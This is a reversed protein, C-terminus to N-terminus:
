DFVRMMREMIDIEEQTPDEKSIFEMIKMKYEDDREDWDLFVRLTQSTSPWYGKRNYKMMRYTTSIPCHINKIRLFKAEEDHLFDADALAVHQNLLGIRVVTFDFNELITQIEGQTVVVGEQMPKILNVTPCPFLLHDKTFPKYVIALDNEDKMECGKNKFAESLKAFIEKTPSYVDLDTAGVPNRLPSCMYRVYGGLIVGGHDYILPYVHQLETFGRHVKVQIFGNQSVYKPKKKKEPKKGLAELAEEHSVEEKPDDTM